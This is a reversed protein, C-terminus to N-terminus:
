KKFLNRGNTLGATKETSLAPISLPAAPLRGGASGQGTVDSIVHLDCDRMMYFVDAFCTLKPPAAHRLNTDRVIFSNKYLSLISCVGLASRRSGSFESWVRALM